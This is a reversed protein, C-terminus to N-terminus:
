SIISFPFHSIMVMKEKGALQQWREVGHIYFFKERSWDKGAPRWYRQGGVAVHGNGFLIVVALPL